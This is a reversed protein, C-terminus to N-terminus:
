DSNGQTQTPGTKASRWGGAEAGMSKGELTLEITEVLKSDDTYAIRSLTYHLRDYVWSELIRHLACFATSPHSAISVQIFFFVRSITPVGFTMQSM